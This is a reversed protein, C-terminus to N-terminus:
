AHARETESPTVTPRSRGLRLSNGIVCVSSLAMAAAAIVPLLRGSAAMPLALLNYCFAWALNQRIVALTDRGIQLALPLATLKSGTLVLDSNELAIDTGGSMACGIDAVALAVADNIGDGVMLVKAGEAQRKRIWDAKAEPTLDAVFHEIGLKKAVADASGPRDGTLMVIKCGVQHLATVVEPADPRIQDSLGIAGLYRSDISVDVRTVHDPLEVENATEPHLSRRGVRIVGEPTTLQVGVGPIAEIGGALPIDLGRKKAEALIAQGLPHRSGAEARAAAALLTEESCGRPALCVVEPAGRTLTGTKDFAVLDVRGAAEVIDGGRFLIGRSAAHGSAVLIAAPTALGLACPCAIVLVSVANILARSSEGDAALWICFTGAALLLVLPVFWSALRDALKQVPARRGQAEEVLAAIRAIFSEGAPALVRVQLTHSINTTGAEVRDGPRCTVPIAEGTVAARDVDSSGEIVAGDAPFRDGPAVLVIDGPKLSTSAVTRTQGGEVLTAKQPALQLLRDIGAGARRRAAAELLRGLLVLTVIMAATDFYVEGDTVLAFLSYGWAALVGLAILLDMGPQRNRLGRWAGALFPWGCFFVVPTAVAAALWQLLTRAEPAMGQFYGAYLALSYGMLQMSLFVATGFRVLDRRREREAARRRTDPSHPRPRYGLRAIKRCLAAVDTVRPDFVLHLRHTGYNVRARVVGPTKELVREVLWCCSACRIGDLLLNIAARNDDFAILWTELENKDFDQDFVDKELATPSWARDRYFSELGAEHILQWAGLCGRCCFNLREGETEHCVLDAKPIPLGCHLCTLNETM